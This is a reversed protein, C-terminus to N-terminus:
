VSQVQATFVAKVTDQITVFEYLTLDHPKSNDKIIPGYINKYGLDKLRHRATDALAKIIEITYVEKVIEALVAAQYGSGTGIELVRDGKKLNAAETMYAVIYPQSITQGYGIPLPHDGYALKKLREPVFLHRKVKYIADLVKQDSIGRHAIQTEVM